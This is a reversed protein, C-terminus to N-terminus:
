AANLRESGVYTMDENKSGGAEDSQKGRRASRASTTDVPQVIECEKREGRRTEMEPHFEEKEATDPEISRTEPWHKDRTLM